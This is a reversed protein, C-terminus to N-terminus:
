GKIEGQANISEFINKETYELMLPYIGSFLNVIGHKGTYFVKGSSDTLSYSLQGRVSRHRRAELRSLPGELPRRHLQKVRGRPYARFREFASTISRTSSAFSGHCFYTCSSHSEM